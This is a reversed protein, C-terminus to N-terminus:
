DQRIAVFESGWGSLSSEPASNILQSDDIQGLADKGRNRREVNIQNLMDKAMQSIQALESPSFEVGNDNFNTIAQYVSVNSGRLGGLEAYAASKILSDRSDEGSYKAFEIDHLDAIDQISGQRVAEEQMNRFAEWNEAKAYRNQLAKIAVMDGHESMQLLTDESYSEYAAVFDPPIFYGLQILNKQLENAKALTKRHDYENSTAEIPDSTNHKSNKTVPEIHRTTDNNILKPDVQTDKSTVAVYTEKSGTDEKTGVQSIFYFATVLTITVVM